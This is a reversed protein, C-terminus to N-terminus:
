NSLTLVDILYWGHLCKHLNIPYEKTRERDKGLTFFWDLTIVIEKKNERSRKRTYFILGIYDGDREQEREISRDRSWDGDRELVASPSESDSKSLRGVPEGDSIIVIRCCRRRCRIFDVGNAIALHLDLPLASAFFDSFLNSPTLSLLSSFPLSFDLFLLDILFFFSIM